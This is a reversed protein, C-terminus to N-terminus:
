SPVLSAQVMAAFATCAPTNSGRQPTYATTRVSSPAATPPM